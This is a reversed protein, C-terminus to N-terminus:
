EFGKEEAIKRYKNRETLPLTRWLLIQERLASVFNRVGTRWDMTEGTKRVAHLELSFREGTVPIAANLTAQMTIGAEYPALRVNMILRRVEVGKEEAKEYNLDQLSFTGTTEGIQAELYEYLYALMPGVETRSAVFPLPVTLEGAEPAVRLRWKRALSPTVMQSAKISPYITSAVTFGLIASVSILLWSSTFNPNLGAFAPMTTFIIAMAVGVIYGLVASVIGVAASEMFFMSSVHRPSLGVASYIGIEKTREYVAATMINVVTLLLLFMPVLIINIRQVTGTILRAYLRKHGESSAHIQYPINRTLSAAEKFVDVPKNFKVAISEIGGPPAVGGPNVVGIIEMEDILTDFPVVVTGEPPCQRIENMVIVYPFLSLGDIDNPVFKEDFVGIITFLKSFVWVKEGVTVNLKEKMAKSILCVYKDGHALWRGETIALKLDRSVETEEPMLGLLATFGVADGKFNRLKGFGFQGWMDSKYLTARAVVTAEGHFKVRLFEILHPPLPRLDREKILLGDYPAPGVTEEYIKPMYGFELSVLSVMSSTVIVITIITLMTRLRRRRLNELGTSWLMLFYGTRSISIEHEGLIAKKVRSMTIQVRRIVIAIPIASLMLGIISIIMMSVSVNLAFGLRLKYAPHIFILIIVSVAMIVSTWGVKDKLTKSNVILKELAFASIFILPFFTTVTNISERIIRMIEEYAESQPRLSEFIKARVTIYEKRQFADYAEELHKHSNTFAEKGYGIYINSEELGKLRKELIDDVTLLGTLDAASILKWQGPKTFFYGKGGEELNNFIVAPLGIKAFMLVDVPINLPVYIAFLPSAMWSTELGYATLGAARESGTVALSGPPRPSFHNNWGFFYVDTQTLHNIVRVLVPITLDPVLTGSVVLSACKFVPITARFSTIPYALQFRTQLRTTGWRGRDTAYEVPGVSPEDVYADLDYVNYNWGYNGFGVTLGPILLRGNRDAKEIILTKSATWLDYLVVLTNNGKINDYTDSTVNYEVVQVYLLNLGADIEPPPTMPIGGRGFQLWDLLYVSSAVFEIQDPLNKFDLKDYTDSPTKRYLETAATVASLGPVGLVGSFPEIDLQTYWLNCSLPISYGSGTVREIEFIPYVKGAENKLIEEVKTYSLIMMGLHPALHRGVIGYFGGEPSVTNANSELNVNGIDFIGAVSTYGSLKWRVLDLYHQYAFWRSGALQLNHGSFAVFWITRKPPHTQFFRVLEMLISIGVSEQAGPADKPIYSFSDYYATIMFIEDKATTGNLIAIINESPIKEYDMNVHLAVQVPGELSLIRQADERTIVVRPIDLPVNVHKLSSESL